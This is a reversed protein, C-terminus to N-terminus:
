QGLGMITRAAPLSRSNLTAISGRVFKTRYGLGGKGFDGHNGMSPNWSSKGVSCRDCFRVVIHTFCCIQRAKAGLLHGIEQPSKARRPPSASKTFDRGNTDLGVKQSRSFTQFQLLFTSLENCGAKVIGIPCGMVGHGQWSQGEWENSWGAM